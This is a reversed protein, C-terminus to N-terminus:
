LNNGRRLSEVNPCGEHSPDPAIYFSLSIRRIDYYPRIDGDVIVPRIIEREMLEKVVNLCLQHYEARSILAVGEPTTDPPIRFERTGQIRHMKTSDTHILFDNFVQSEPPLRNCNDLGAKYGCRRGWGYGLALGVICGFIYIVLAYIISKIM